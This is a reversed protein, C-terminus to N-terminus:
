FILSGLEFFDYGASRSNVNHAEFQARRRASRHQRTRADFNAAVVGTVRRM